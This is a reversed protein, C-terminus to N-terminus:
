EFRLAEVPEKKSAKRAPLVGSIVGIIFSFGVSGVVLEVSVYPSFPISVSQEILIGAIHSIGIGVTAGAIGGIMGVIGSEIMFLALIQRQTAGIAKMVGIERTRETVATYMTNMIGIGGVLLSISGIGLLVGRVINLQNRFSRLIDEATRVQFDESGEEVGRENRLAERIEDAAEEPRVGDQTQAIILDYENEKDLVKRAQDIPMVFGNIGQFGGSVTYTGVISYDQDIDIKSRLFLEEEFSDEALDTEVIVASEDAQRIYRGEKIELGSIERVLDAKQGTPVGTVSIYDTERRYDAAVSGSITGISNEIEPVRDIAQIDNETLEFTTDSFRGGIGGGSSIFVNRGGLEELESSISSELGQGISVLSVVAMIGILTGIITLWSRRKRHRLSNVSLRFFDLIM